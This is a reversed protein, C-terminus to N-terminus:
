AQSQQGERGGREGQGGRGGRVTVGCRPCYEVGEPVQAPCGPRPCSRGGGVGGSEGVPGLKQVRNGAAEFLRGLSSMALVMLAVLGVMVAIFYMIRM